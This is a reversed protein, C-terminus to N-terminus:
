IYNSSNASRQSTNTIYDAIIFPLGLKMWTRATKHDMYAEYEKIKEFAHVVGYGASIIIFDILGRLYLKHILDKRLVKYELGVYLSLATVARTGYITNKFVGRAYLLKNRASDSLSNLISVNLNPFLEISRKSKCCQTVILFRPM